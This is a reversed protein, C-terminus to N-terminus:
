FSCFSCFLIRPSVMGQGVTFSLPTGRNYSADFEKGSQLTGRYHVDITDGRQTRRKAAENGKLVEIDLGAPINSPLTAMAFTFFFLFISSFIATFRM